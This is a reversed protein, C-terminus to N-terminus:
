TQMEPPFLLLPSPLPTHQGCGNGTPLAVAQARERQGSHGGIAEQSAGVSRNMGAAQQKTGVPKWATAGAKTTNALGHTASTLQTMSPMRGWEM